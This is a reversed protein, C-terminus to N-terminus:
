RLLLIKRTSHEQSHELSLRCFYVGSPAKLGNDTIGDWRVRHAGKTEFGEGLVKVLKGSVDYVCLSIWGDAPLSYEVTMLASFPQPYLKSISFDGSAIFPLDEEVGLQNHYRVWASDYNEQIDGLDDGGLIAVAFVVSDDPSLTYPGSSVCMSWDDWPTPNQNSLVGQMFYVKIMDAIFGNPDVYTPNNIFSLNKAPVPDLLGVGVFETGAGYQYVLNRTPDVGGSNSDAVGVNWDMFQGYYLANQAYLGENKFIYRMIVYDEHGPDSWAWGDQMCTLGKPSPHGGDDYKAWSDEESVFAGKGVMGHIPRWDGANEASYDRNVMYGASNGAWVSGIYLHQNGSKPYHFGSGQGQSDDIFGCIGRNSVTFLVNGVDHDYLPRAVVYTFTPDWSFGGTATIHLTFGIEAGSPAGALATMKFPDSTNNATNGATITGFSSVSDSISVHQGNVTARLTAQVNNATANGGNLLTVSIEAYEGPEWTENGNSESFTRDAIDVYPDYIPSLHVALSPDGFLNPVLGCFHWIGQSWILNRHHNKTAAQAIGIELTDDCIVHFLTTDLRESPGTPPWTMWGYRSNLVCAVAGAGDSKEMLHEAICDEAEDFSGSYCAPSNLIIGLTNTLYPVDSTTLVQNGDEAYFGTENGHANIHMLNYNENMADRTLPSYCNADELKTVTWSPFMDGIRNNTTRGHWGWSQVLMVSPLLLKQVAAAPPCYTYVSDKIIFSNIDGRSDISPRGVFIDYYGDVGDGSIEGYRGDNDGDWSGDLDAYYYDAALYYPESFTCYADREPIMDVDGGLIAYILGENTFYDKLFNRIEEQHDDGSYNAYIWNTSFFETALGDKIKLDVLRQWHSEYTGLSIIAFECARPPDQKTPPAFAEVDCRNTVISSVAKKFVEKQKNTLSFVEGVGEEYEIRVTMSTMLQLKKESPIYRIPYVFIGAIRFGSMSGAPFSVIDEGPYPASSGYIAPDPEVFEFDRQSSIPRPEQVPYIDFVGPLEVTEKEIVEVKTIEAGPPIVFNAALFPICPEGVECTQVGGKLMVVDFGDMSTFLLDDASVTFTHTVSGAFLFVPLLSVVYM